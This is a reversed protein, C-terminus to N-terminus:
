DDNRWKRGALRQNRETANLELVRERLTAVNWEIPDAPFDTLGQACSDLTLITLALLGEFTTHLLDKDMLQTRTDAWTNGRLEITENKLVRGVFDSLPVIAM